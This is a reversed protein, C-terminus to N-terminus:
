LKHWVYISILRPNYYTLNAAVVFSKAYVTKREPLNSFPPVVCPTDCITISYDLNRPLFNSFNLCDINNQFVCIRKTDNNSIESIAAGQFLTVDSPVGLGKEKNKAVYTIVLLILIIAAIAEFTRIYAKKNVM